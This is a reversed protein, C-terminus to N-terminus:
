IDRVGGYGYRNVIVIGVIAIVGGMIALATPLEDLWIWAIIITPVPSINLISTLISAPVKSLAYNWMLYALAGPFIGMYIITCINETTAEILEVLLTESYGLL